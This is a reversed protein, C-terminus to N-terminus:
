NSANSACDNFTNAGARPGNGGPGGVGVITGYNIIKITSGSPMGAFSLAPVPISFGLSIMASSVLAVGPQVIVIFNRTGPYNKAYANYFDVGSANATIKITVIKKVDDCYGVWVHFLTNYYNLCDEDTNFVHLGNPPDDIADRQATTMRPFLVGKDTAKIELAAKPHPANTGIGVQAHISLVCFLLCCFSFLLKKM